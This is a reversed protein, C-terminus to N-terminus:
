FMWIMLALELVGGLAEHTLPSALCLVVFALNISVGIM